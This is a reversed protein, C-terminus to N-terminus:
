HVYDQKVWYVYKNSSRYSEEVMCDLVGLEVLKKLHRQTSSYPRNVMQQVARVDFMGDFSKVADVIDKDVYVGEIYMM